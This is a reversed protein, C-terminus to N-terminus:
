YSLGYDGRAAACCLMELEDETMDYLYLTHNQAAIILEPRLSIGRVTGASEINDTSPDVLPM